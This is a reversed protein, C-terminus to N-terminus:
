SALYAEVVENTSGYAKVGGQDLWLCTDCLDQITSPSHSVIVIAKALAMFEKMKRLAKAKFKKDGAAFVEDIILIEPDIHVAVSFGLRAKMGSSYYKIQTDIFRELGSFEVIADYREQLLKKDFGMYIGNLYINERGSLETKFGVGLSLLSSVKGTVTLTGEDPHLVGILLKLLTSKGAGNNGIVGLIEGEKVSFSVNRLAWFQDPDGTKLLLGKVSQSKGRQDKRRRVKQFYIGIKEASIVTKGFSAGPPCTEKGPIDIELSCPKSVVDKELYVATVVFILRDNLFSRLTDLEVRAMRSAADIAGIRKVLRNTKENRILIEFNLIASDAPSLWEFILTKIDESLHFSLATPRKYSLNAVARSMEDEALGVGIRHSKSSTHVVQQSTMRISYYGAPLPEALSYNGASVPINEHKIFEATKLNKIIITVTTEADGGGYEWIIESLRDVYLDGPEVIRIALGQKELKNKLLKERKLSWKLKQQVKKQQKVLRDRVAKEREFRALFSKREAKWNISGQNV